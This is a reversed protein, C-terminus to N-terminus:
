NQRDNQIAMSVIMGSVIIRTTFSLWNRNTTAGYEKGTPLTDTKGSLQDITLLDYATLYIM